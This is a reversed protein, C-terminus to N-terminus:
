TGLLVCFSGIPSLHGFFVRFFGFPGSIVWWSRFHGFLVPCIPVLCPWFPGVPGFVVLFIWLNLFIFFVGGLVM